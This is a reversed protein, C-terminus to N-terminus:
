RHENAQVRGPAAAARAAASEPTPPEIGYGRLADLVLTWRISSRRIWTVGAAEIEDLAGVLDWGNVLALHAAAQGIRGNINALGFHNAEHCMPCLATLRLLTQVAHEDDYGWWEHCETPHRPGRRGCLECRNGAEESLRRSLRRWVESPLHNRLNSCWATSPVLVPRLVAPGPDVGALRRAEPLVRLGTITALRSVAPRDRTDVDWEKADRDWNATSPWLDLAIQHRQFTVPRIAFRGDTAGVFGPPHDNPSLTSM